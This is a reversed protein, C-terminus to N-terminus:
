RLPGVRSYTVSGEGLIGWDANDVSVEVVPFNGLDEIALLCDSVDIQVLDLLFDAAAVDLGGFDVRRLLILCHASLKRTALKHRM